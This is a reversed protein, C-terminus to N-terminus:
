NKEIFHLNGLTRTNSVRCLVLELVRGRTCRTTQKLTAELRAFDLKPTHLISVTQQVSM